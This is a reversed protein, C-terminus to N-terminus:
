RAPTAPSSRKRRASGTSNRFMENKVALDETVAEIVIDADRLEELETTTRLRGLVADREDASLKGKSVARELSRAIAQRGREVTEADVERVWTEYGARAAVEAIGSGM